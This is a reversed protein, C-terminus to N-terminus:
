RAIRSDMFTPLLMGEVLLRVLGNSILAQLARHLFYSRSIGTLVRIHPTQPDAFRAIRHVVPTAVAAVRGGVTVVLAFLADAARNGAKGFLRLGRDIGSSATRGLWSLARLCSGGAKQLLSSTTTQTIGAVLGRISPSATRRPLLLLHRPRIQGYLAALGTRTYVVLREVSHAECRRVSM